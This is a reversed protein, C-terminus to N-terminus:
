FAEEILDPAVEIAVKSVNEIPDFSKPAVQPSGKKEFRLEKPNRKLQNVFLKTQTKM